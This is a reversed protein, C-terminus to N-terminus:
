SLFQLTQVIKQLSYYNVMSRLIHEFYNKHDIPLKTTDFNLDMPLTVGSMKSLHLIDELEMIKDTMCLQVWSRDPAWIINIGLFRTIENSVTLKYTLNLKSIFTDSFKEHGDGVVTFLGDDVNIVLVILREASIYTHMTLDAPNNTLVTNMEIATQMVSEHMCKNWELGAEIMGYFYM